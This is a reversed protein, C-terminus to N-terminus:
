ILLPPHKETVHEQWHNTCLWSHDNCNICIINSLSNCIHCSGKERYCKYVPEYIKLDESRISNKNDLLFDIINQKNETLLIRQEKDSKELEDKIKTKLNLKLSENDVEEGETKKSHRNEGKHSYDQRIQVQQSLQQNKEAAADLTEITTTIAKENNSNYKEDLVCLTIQDCCVQQEKYLHYNNKKEYEQLLDELKERNTLINHIDREDRIVINSIPKVKSLEERVNYRWGWSEPEGNYKTHIEQVRDNVFDVEYIIENDKTIEYFTTIAQEIAFSIEHLAFLDEINYPYKAEDKGDISNNYSEEKSEFPCSFINMINCHYTILGNSNTNLSINKNCQNSVIRAFVKEIGVFIPDDHSGSLLCKSCKKRGLTPNKRFELLEYYNTNWNKIEEKLKEDVIGSVSISGNYDDPFYLLPKRSTLNIKYNDIYTSSKEYLDNWTKTSIIKKGKWYNIGDNSTSQHHTSSASYPHIDDLRNQLDKITKNINAIRNLKKL